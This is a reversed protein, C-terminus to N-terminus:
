KTVFEELTLVGNFDRDKARFLQAARVQNRMMATFEEFSLQGDMNTDLAVFLAKEGSPDGEDAAVASLPLLMTLAAILLKRKM